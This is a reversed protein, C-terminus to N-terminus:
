QVYVNMSDPIEPLIVKIVNTVLFNMMGQMAKYQYPTIHEFGQPPVDWYKYPKKKKKERKEEKGRSRSFPYLAPKLYATFM